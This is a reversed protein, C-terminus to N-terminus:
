WLAKGTYPVSRQGRKEKNKCSSSDANDIYKIMLLVSLLHLNERSYRTDM